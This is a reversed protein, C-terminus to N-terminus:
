NYLLCRRFLLCELYCLVRQGRSTAARNLRNDLVIWAKHITHHITHQFTVCDLMRHLKPGCQALPEHLVLVSLDFKCVFIFLDKESGKRNTGFAVLEETRYRILRLAVSAHNLVPLVCFM